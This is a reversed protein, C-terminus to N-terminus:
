EPVIFLLKKNEGLYHFFHFPLYFTLWDPVDKEPLPVECFPWLLFRLYVGTIGIAEWVPQHCDGRKFILWRLVLTLAPSTEILVGFVSFIAFSSTFSRWAVLWDIMSHRAISGIPQNCYIAFSIETEITYELMLYQSVHCWYIPICSGIPSNHRTQNKLPIWNSKVPHLLSM